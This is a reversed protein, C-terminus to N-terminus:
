DSLYVLSDNSWFHTYLFLNPSQINATQTHSNTFEDSLYYLPSFDLRAAPYWCIRHARNGSFWNIFPKLKESKDGILANLLQLSM